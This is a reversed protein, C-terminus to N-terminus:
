RGGISIRQPRRNIVISPEDALFDLMSEPDDADFVGTLQRGAIQASVDIQLRNYRNFQAAIDALTDNRFVLRRQRWATIEGTDEVDARAVAGGAVVTVQEGAVLTVPGAAVDAMAGTPVGPSGSGDAAHIVSVKGEVVTVETRDSHRYVNFRTGIAQVVTDSAMVRFPRGPDHEIRFLAEGDLLEVRREEATFAVRLGSQTNLHVVSGDELTFSIQEGLSTVYTDSATTHFPLLYIASTLAVIVAAAGLWWARRMHGKDAPEPTPEFPATDLAVINDKARTVLEEVRLSKGPDLRELERWTVELTLFEEIHVPSEKLWAAFGAEISADADAADLRLLWELAQEAIKDRVEDTKRKDYRDNM